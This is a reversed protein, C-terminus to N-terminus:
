NEKRPQLDWRRYDGLKVARPMHGLHWGDCLSCLYPSMEHGHRAKKGAKKAAARSDYRRKQTRPCTTWDDIRNPRSM